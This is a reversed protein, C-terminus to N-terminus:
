VRSHIGFADIVEPRPVCCLLLAVLILTEIIFSQEQQRPLTFSNNINAPVLKNGRSLSGAVQVCLSV